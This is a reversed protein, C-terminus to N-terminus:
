GTGALAQDSTARRWAWRVSTVSTALLDKLHFVGLPQKFCGLANDEIRPLPKTYGMGWLRYGPGMDWAVSPLWLAWLVLFVWNM